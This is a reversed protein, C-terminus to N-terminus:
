QKFISEQLEPNNLETFANCIEMSNIFVEFRETLFPHNRHHKALPSMIQPHNILFTPNKCDIEIFKKILSDLLKAISFPKKNSDSM